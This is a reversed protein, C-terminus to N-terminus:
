LIVRNWRIADNDIHNARFVQRYGHFSVTDLVGFRKHVRHALVGGLDPEASDERHLKTLLDGIVVNGEVFGPKSRNVEDVEVIQLM